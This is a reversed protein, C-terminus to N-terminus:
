GQQMSAEYHQAAPAAATKRACAREAATAVPEVTAAVCWGGGGGHVQAQGGDRDREDRSAASAGNGGGCTSGDCTYGGCTSGGCTPALHMRGQEACGVGAIMTGDRTGGNDGGGGAGDAVRGGGTGAAAGDLTGM